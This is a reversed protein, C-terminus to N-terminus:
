PDRPLSVELSKYSFFRRVESLCNGEEKGEQILSAVEEKKNGKREKMGGEKSKKVRREEKRSKSAKEIINDVRRM